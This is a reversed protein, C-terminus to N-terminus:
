CRLLHEGSIPHDYEDRVVDDVDIDEAGALEELPKREYNPQLFTYILIYWYTWESVPEYLNYHM